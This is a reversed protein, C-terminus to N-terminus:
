ENYYEEFKGQINIIQRYDIKTHNIILYHQDQNFKEIPGTITSYVGGDKKDDKIFYTLTVEGIELYHNYVYYMKQNLLFLAQEDLHIENTTLRAQERVLDDYGTLAAFPSFQAAREEMSMKPHKSSPRDLYLLDQYPMM